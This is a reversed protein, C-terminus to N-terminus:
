DHALDKEFILRPSERAGLNRKFRLLSPKLQRQGDLSPGLDLLKISQHQCYTYLGALLMVMPSFANYTANSAPLFNYLIDARVRVAVTLATISTGDMVRFVQCHNPFDRLLATLQQPAITLHYGKQQRAEQLFRLVDTSDTFFWQQFQFGARTCKALRRREAPRIARAFLQDTVPLYSTMLTEVLCFGHSLLKRTLHELQEPAYCTPANVLRLAGAQVSIAAQTLFRIFNDLVYEPLFESYEISGFPATVPSLAKGAQVFFACRIDTQKTSLNLGTLWYFGDPHQQRLHEYTNFLFGAGSFASM